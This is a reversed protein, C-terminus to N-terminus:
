DKRCQTGGYQWENCWYKQGDIYLDFSRVRYGDGQYSIPIGKEKCEQESKQLARWIHAETSDDDDAYGVKVDSAYAVPLDEVWKGHPKYEWGACGSLTLAALLLALYKM